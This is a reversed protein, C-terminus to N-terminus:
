AEARCRSRWERARATLGLYANGRRLHPELWGAAVAEDVLGDGPGEACLFPFKLPNARRHARLTGRGIFAAGYCAEEFCRLLDCLQPTEPEAAAPRPDPPNLRAADGDAGARRLRIVVETYAAGDAAEVPRTSMAEVEARDFEYGRATIRM